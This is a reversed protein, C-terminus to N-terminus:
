TTRAKWGIDRLHSHVRALSIPDPGFLGLAGVCPVFPLEVVDDLVWGHQGHMRWPKQHEDVVVEGKVYPREVRDMGPLCPGRVKESVVLSAAMGVLNAVGCIGGRYFHHEISSMVRDSPLMALMAGEAAAGFAEWVFAIFDEFEEATCGKAAHLLLPGRYETKWKRNEIRKGAQLIAWLWPQRVSLALLPLGDADVGSGRAPNFAGKWDPM